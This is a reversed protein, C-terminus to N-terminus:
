QFLYSKKILDYNKYYNEPSKCSISNSSAFARFEKDYVPMGIYNHKLFKLWLAWDWLRDQGYLDVFGDIDLFADTKILSNFSIYNGNMLVSSNFPKAKFSRNMYGYYEFSTYAYAINDNSSELAKYMSDLWGSDADIDNDLKMLYKPISNKKKYEELAKECNVVPNNSSSYSIWDFLVDNKVISEETLVSVFDKKRLPTILLIDPKDVKIIENYM